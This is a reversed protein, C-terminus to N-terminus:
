RLSSNGDEISSWESEGFDRESLISSVSVNVRRGMCRSGVELAMLVEELDRARLSSSSVRFLRCRVRRVSSEGM